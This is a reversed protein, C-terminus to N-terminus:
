DNIEDGTDNDQLDNRILNTLRGIVDAVHSASPSYNDLAQECDQLYFHLHQDSIPEWQEYSENEPDDARHFVFHFNSTESDRCAMEYLTKRDIMENLLNNSCSAVERSSYLTARADILSIKALFSSDIYTSPNAQLSFLCQLLEEYLSMREIAKQEGIKERYKQEGANEAREQELRYNVYATVIVGLIGSLIPALLENLFYCLPSQM